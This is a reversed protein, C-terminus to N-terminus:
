TTFLADVFEDVEFPRLDSVREGVGIYHIPITLADCVGIVVGGKATGDLKTLVIGTVDTAEKFTTAQQIANQGTTADVVLLVEHPAGPIAKGMVKRVKKLEDMLNTQTHLRGATDVLILDANNELGARLGDFVVSSPDAGEEGRTVEAGVRKGWQELQEAAAARFTDGAVLNVVQGSGVARAALKGISTTKGAGNVGLVMVVRPGEEPTTGLDANQADTLITVVETRLVAWVRDLDSLEGKSLTERVTTFLRQATRVGIDATLLVEELEDLVADNDAADSFLKGIRALFGENRTKSLGERLETAAPEETPAAAPAEDDSTASDELTPAAPASPPSLEDTKAGAAKVVIRMVFLFLVVAVIIALVNPELAAEELPRRVIAISTLLPLSWKPCPANSARNGHNAVTRDSLRSMVLPAAISRAHGWSSGAANDRDQQEGHAEVNPRRWHPYTGTGLHLNVDDAGVLPERQPPAEGIVGAGRDTCTRNM